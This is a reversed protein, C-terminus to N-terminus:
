IPPEVYSGGCLVESTRVCIRVEHRNTQAGLLVDLTFNEEVHRVQYVSVHVDDEVCGRDLLHFLIQAVPSHATAHEHAVGAHVGFLVPARRRQPGALVYQGRAHARAILHALFDDRAATAVLGHAVVQADLLTTSVM